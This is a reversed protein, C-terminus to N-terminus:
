FLHYHEPEFIAWLDIRQCAPIKPEPMHCRGHPRDESKRVRDKMSTDDVNGKRGTESPMPTMSSNTHHQPDDGGHPVNSTSMHGTARLTRGGGGRGQRRSPRSDDATKNKAKDIVDAM